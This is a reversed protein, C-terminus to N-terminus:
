LDYERYFVERTHQIDSAVLDTSRLFVVTQHQSRFDEAPNLVFEAM